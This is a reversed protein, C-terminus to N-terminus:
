AGGFHELKWKGCTVVTCRYLNRLSVGGEVRQRNSREDLAVGRAAAARRRIFLAGAGGATANGKAVMFNFHVFAREGLLPARIRLEDAAEYLAKREQVPKM